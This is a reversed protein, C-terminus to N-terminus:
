LATSGEKAPGFYCVVGDTTQDGSLSVCTWRGYITVGKPFVNSTDLILGGGGKTNSAFSHAATTVTAPRDLEIASADAAGSSDFGVRKVKAIFAGTSSLYMSDGVEATADGDMDIFTGATVGTAVTDAATAHSASITNIFRNPDEATLIDFETDGLCQIAVVVMGNPPVLVGADTDLFASGLQGFAMQNSMGTNSLTAM